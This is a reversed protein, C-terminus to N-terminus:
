EHHVTYCPFAQVNPSVVLGGCEPLDPAGRVRCQELEKRLAEELPLHPFVCFPEMGRPNWKPDYPGVNFGAPVTCSAGHDILTETALLPASLCCMLVGTLVLKKTKM